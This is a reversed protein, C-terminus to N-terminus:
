DDTFFIAAFAVLMGVPICVVTLIFPRAPVGHEKVLTRYRRETSRTRPLIAADSQGIRVNMYTRAAGGVVFVVIGVILTAVSPNSM